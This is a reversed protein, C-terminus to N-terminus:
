LAHAHIIDIIDVPTLPMHRIKANFPSLAHDVASALAATIPIVGSEGVGKIGLENLPSPTEVHIIKIDRPMETSTMIMYDALTTSLPQGQDDFRMYELLANGLGHAIGGIIQGDVIQPHISRGCDHVFVIREVMIAGTHIDVEVEIVCTGNAYTMDNIIVREIEELGPDVGGPLYYGPMGAVSKAIDALSIQDGGGKLRVHRGSLELAQEGVNLLHSAIKLAKHKLKKAAANASSGAMVAQRSNFGGLGLEIAGTDGTVVSINSIDHGLEEAVIQALMTKTSQGMASAGSSVHIRGNEAIKIKVPEFPGRGTGEVYNAIGIGIYRGQARAKKQRADFDHWGSHELALELCKPYDGSDLVILMGGRTKMQTKYPMSEAPVLNRRRIEAREIGLKHAAHDLLREMAFVAQPQGAGRIPTVPVKNTVVLQVDLHYHPIVYPLTMASASGQPVNVGRATYAGHDHLLLGRLGLIRGEDDTALEVDWYQDREQTTSVFHESRDEIWKVAQKIMLAALACIIEEPYFVLKPGFGGGVDPTIVRIKDEDRGLLDCLLRKCSHPTQTSTWVTLEDILEDYKAVVGRCEMSLAAGRHQFLQERFIHPANKFATACDGYDLRFQAVLNDKQTTHALPSDANLATSFDHVAPLVEYTIDVKQAIDEAEYRNRAIIAAIPEGVYVVEDGALIPRHLEQKFAPSPLAVRLLRDSVLPEIDGATLIKIVGEHKLANETNISRIRAHAHPSRIFAIHAMYPLSIDDVFRGEGRLLSKDELRTVNHGIIQHDSTDVHQEHPMISEPGSIFAIFAKANHKYRISSKEATIILYKGYFSISFYLYTLIEINSKVFQFYM